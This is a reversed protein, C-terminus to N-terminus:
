CNRFIKQELGSKKLMYSLFLGGVVCPLLQGLGVQLMTLWLTEYAGGFLVTNLEWGILVANVIVPPWVALLPLGKWTVRRLAYSLVAALLTAVSGILLDWAGAVNAGLSLGVANSLLCGLTLGGISHRSFVPLVTLIESFRCQVTGFSAIPLCLTLVAYLAAILGTETLRHLSDSTSNKM